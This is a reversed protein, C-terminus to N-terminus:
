TDDMTVKTGDLEGAKRLEQNFQPYKSKPKESTRTKSKTLSSSKSPM